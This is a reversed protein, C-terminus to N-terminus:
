FQWKGDQQIENQNRLVLIDQDKTSFEIQREVANNHLLKILNVQTEAVISSIQRVM